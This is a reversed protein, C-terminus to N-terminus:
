GTICFSIYLDNYELFRELRWVPRLIEKHFWLIKRERKTITNYAQEWLRRRSQFETVIHDNEENKSKPRHSNNDKSCQLKILYVPDNKYNSSTSSTTNKRTPIVTQSRSRNKIIKQMQSPFKPSTYYINDRIM